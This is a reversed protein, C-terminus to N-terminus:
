PSSRTKWIVKFGDECLIAFGYSNIMEDIGHNIEKDLHYPRGALVIGKMNNKDLYELTEITKNKVDLKFQDLINM